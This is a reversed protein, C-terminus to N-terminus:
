DLFDKYKKSVFKLESLFPIIKEVLFNVQNIQIIVCPKANKTSPKGVSISSRKSIIELYDPSNKLYNDEISYSDLFNKIAYMLSLQAYTLAFSLCVGLSNGNQTIFFSGEGEIL